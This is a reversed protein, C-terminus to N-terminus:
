QYQGGGARGPRRKQLARAQGEFCLGRINIFVFELGPHLGLAGLCGCARQGLQLRAMDGLLRGASEHNAGVLQEITVAFPEVLRAVPRIGAILQTQQAAAVM